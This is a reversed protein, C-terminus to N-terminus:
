GSTYPESPTSGWPGARERTLPCSQSSCVRGCVRETALGSLDVDVKVVVNPFRLLDVKTFLVVNPVVTVLKVFAPLQSALLQCLDEALLLPLM